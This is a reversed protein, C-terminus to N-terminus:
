EQVDREGTLHSYSHNALVHGERVARRVLEPMRKANRGIAFLTVQLHLQQLAELLAEDGSQPFDDFTLYLPEGRSSLPESLYLKWRLPRPAVDDYLPYFLM